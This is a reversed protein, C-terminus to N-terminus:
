DSDEGHAPIYSKCEPWAPFASFVQQGDPRWPSIFRLCRRAKPCDGNGCRSFDYALTM